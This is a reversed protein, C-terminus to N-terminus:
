STIYIDFECSIAGSASAFFGMMVVDCPGTLPGIPDDANPVFIAGGTLSAHATQGTVTGTFTSNVDDANPRTFFMTTATKGSEASIDRIFVYGVKGSPITYGGIQSQGVAFTNILPITAWTAGGGAVRITITGTHSGGSSSGYTGSKSVYARYVRLWTGTLAVAVTGDTAHAAITVTQEVWSASLGVVTIEHMGTSNLADSTSSSVFELSVAATPTPYVGASTIPAFTTGVSPNQGFKRVASLGPIQGELINLWGPRGNTLNSVKV